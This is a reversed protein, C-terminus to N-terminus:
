EGAGGKKYHDLAAQILEISSALHGGRSLAKPDWAAADRAIELTTEDLHKDSLCKEIDKVLKSIRADKAVLQARLLDIEQQDRTKEVWISDSHPPEQNQPWNDSGM